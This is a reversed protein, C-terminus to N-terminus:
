DTKKGTMEAYVEPQENKLKLKSQYGMKDFAEKTIGENSGHNDDENGGLRHENVRKGNKGSDDNDGEFQTGYNKKLDEIIYSLGKINGADDLNLETKNKEIQYTLYDVDKAGAKLLASRLNSSVRTDSLEKKLSEIKSEYETIKGKLTEDPKSNKFEDVLKNAQDLESLKSDREKELSDYKEKSVYGGESLDVLKVQKDKNEDKANYEDISKVLEKYKEEGLIKKLFDM